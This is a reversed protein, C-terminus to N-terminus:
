AAGDNQRDIPAAPLRPGLFGVPIGAARCMQTARSSVVLLTIVNLCPLMMGAAWVWAASSGMAQATRYGFYVLAAASGLMLIAVVTGLPRAVMRPLTLNGVVNTLEVTLQGGFCLVLNRYAVALERSRGEILSSVSEM